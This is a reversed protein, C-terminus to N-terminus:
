ASARGRTCAHFLEDRNRSAVLEAFATEPDGQSEEPPVFPAKARMTSDDFEANAAIAAISGPHLQTPDPM